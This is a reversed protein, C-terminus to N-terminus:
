KLVRGYIRFDSNESVDIPKYAPNLSVLQLQSEKKNNKTFHLKKCYAEGDLYFIGIDGEQLESTRRVWVIDGNELLPNMSDGHIRIGFDANDPVMPSLELSIEMLHYYDNDIFEGTGASAPLDYVPLTRPKQPTAFQVLNDTKNNTKNNKTKNNIADIQSNNDSSNNNSSNNNSSNNISSNNVTSYHSSINNSSYKNSSKLLEIYEEAKMLGETNLGETNLGETNLGETNLGETNLGETNLGSINLGSINLDSLSNDSFSNKSSELYGIFNSYIDKIGYIQCLALFQTANPSALGKEWSSVSKNKTSLGMDTLRKAVEIQSLGAEHRFQTLKVSIDYIDYM